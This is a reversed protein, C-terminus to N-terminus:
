AVFGFFSLHYSVTPGFREFVTVLLEKLSRGASHPPVIILRPRENDLLIKTLRKVFRPEGIAEVIDIFIGHHRYFHGEVFADAHIRIVATRRYRDFFAKNRKAHDKRIRQVRERVILPFYTQPDIEVSSKPPKAAIQSSSYEQLRPSFDCLEPIALDGLTFPSGALRYLVLCRACGGEKGLTRAVDRLSRGTMLASFLVVYPSQFGYSAKSAIAVLQKRTGPRGDHYHSLMEVRFHAKAPDYQALRRATNLALSSISWTDVIMGKIDNLHPLMWFFTADLVRTGIQINGVRLFSESYAGSPLHYRYGPNKPMLADTEEVFHEMERQRICSLLNAELGKLDPAFTNESLDKSLQLRYNQSSLLIISALPFRGKLRDIGAKDADQPEAPRQVFVPCRVVILHRGAVTRRHEKYLAGVVDSLEDNEDLHLLIGDLRSGRPIQYNFPLLEM